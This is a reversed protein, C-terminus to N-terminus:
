RERGGRMETRGGSQRDANGGGTREIRQPRDVRESRQVPEVRPAERREIQQM